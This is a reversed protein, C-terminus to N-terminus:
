GHSVVLRSIVVQGVSGSPEGNDLNSQAYAGAKFYMGNGDYPFDLKEEGNYSVRLHGQSAEIRVTFTSGLVYSNDLDALRQGDHEVFLDSDELRIMVVDDEADHIQGAVIEQKKTPLKSILQVIEMVHTGSTSSWAALSSGDCAMERLESRPYKSGPTTAGTAPATFTVSRGTVRFHEDAFTSLTPQRVELAEGEPGRTPLTLKWCSLDLVAAPHAPPPPLSPALSSRVPLPSVPTSVGTSTTPSPTMTPRVSAGVEFPTATTATTATTAGVTASQLEARSGCASLSAIVMLAIGWAGRRSSALGCPATSGLKANGNPITM